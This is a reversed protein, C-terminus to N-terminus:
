RADPTRGEHSGPAWLLAWVPDHDSAGKPGKVASAKLGEVPELGRALVQDFSFGLGLRRATTGVERTLWSYGARAMYEAVGRSNFDGMIIVPFPSKSADELVVDAQARRRGGSTGLPAGFHVCYVRIPRGAIRVTAAVAARRQNAVLSRHPLLIKRPDEIPWPSLLANGFDRGTKPHISVPYYVYKLRLAEAIRAVGPADMEQLALVDPGSLFPQRLAQLAQDVHQAYQINYTVVRITAHADPVLGDGGVYIPGLPDLYNHTSCGPAPILALAAFLLRRARPRLRETARM